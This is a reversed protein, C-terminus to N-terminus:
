RSLWFHAKLWPRTPDVSQYADQWQLQLRMRAKRQATLIRDRM